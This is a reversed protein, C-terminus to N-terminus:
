ADHQFQIWYHTACFWGPVRFAFDPVLEPRFYRTIPIAFDGLAAKRQRLYLVVMEGGRGRHGFGGGDIWRAMIGIQLGKRKTVKSFEVRFTILFNRHVYNCWQLWSGGDQPILVSQKSGVQIRRDSFQYRRYISIM